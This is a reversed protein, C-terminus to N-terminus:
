RTIVVRATRVGERTAMRTLYVGSALAIGRADRGDWETAYEGAPRPGDELRRVLSGAANFVDITVTTASRLGYTMRIRGSSPSPVAALPVSAGTVLSEDPVDTAPRSPYCGTHQLDHQFMQWQMSAPDYLGDLEWVYIIGVAVDPEIWNASSMVDVRGDGDIDDVAPSSYAILEMPKPFGHLLVGTANLAYMEDDSNFLVDPSGDADVDAVVPPSSYWDPVYSFKVAGDHHMAYLTVDYAFVIELDDNDDLDALAINSHEMGQGMPQNLLFNGNRDLIHVGRESTCVVENFGDGNVDGIAPDSRSIAFIRRSWLPSGDGHYARINTTDAPAGNRHSMAVIDLDADGDLDGVAPTNTESGQFHELMVPFGPVNTGNSDLVVLRSGDLYWGGYVVEVSQDNNVDALVAAAFLNDSMQFAVDVTRELVGQSDHILLSNGCPMVIETAGDGDIDAISPFTRPDFYCDVDVQARIDGNAEFIYLTSLHGNPNGQTTVVLEKAGDNELDAAVPSVMGIWTNPEGLITHPWHAFVTGPQLLLLPLVAYGILKM